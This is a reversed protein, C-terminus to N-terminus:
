IADSAICLVQGVSPAREDQAATRMVESALPDLQRASSTSVTSTKRRNSAAKDSMATCNRRVLASEGLERIALFSDSSSLWTPEKEAQSLSRGSPNLVSALSSSSGLGSTTSYM